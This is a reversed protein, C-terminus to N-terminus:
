DIDNFVEYSDLKWFRSITNNFESSRAGKSKNCCECTLQFNTPDNNGGNELPIIHDYNEKNDTHLIKTLDAGCIQCRGKDRYFVGKKMWKPISGCRKIVGDKKLYQPYKDTTLECILESLQKNFEYLFNKDTFLVTFIDDIVLGMLKKQFLEYIREAFEEVEDFEESSLDDDTKGRFKFTGISSYDIDYFELLEVINSTVVMPFHKDLFYRFEYSYIFEIYSHVLTKKHPKICKKLYNIETYEIWVKLIVGNLGHLESIIQSAMNISEDGHTISYINKKM